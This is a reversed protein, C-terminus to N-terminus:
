FLAKDYVYLSAYLTTTAAVTFLVAATRNSMSVKIGSISSIGLLLLLACPIFYRGQVGTVLYFGIENFTLYLLLIISLASLLGASLLAAAQSTKIKDVYLASICLIFTTALVLIYPLSVTNYGLRGIFSDHWESGNQWFTHGLIRLFDLPHTFIFHLQESMGINAMQIPTFYVEMADAYQIGKLSVLAFIVTCATFLVLKKSYEQKRSDFLKAPLIFILLIAIAYSPKTFMLLASTVYLLIEHRVSMTKKSYLLKLIVAIFLITISNTYMDANITVASFISSPLLAILFVVWKARYDRLLRLASYVCALYFLVQTLKSLILTSDVSLNLVMGIKMGIAAPVYVLPAYPGTTGFEYFQTQTSNIRQSGLKYVAQPDKVDRRTEEYVALKRDVANSQSWGNNIVGILSIPLIGGYGTDTRDPYLGGDAIQYVRATHVQEDLGWSHPTIYIFALVAPVAVILFITDTHRFVRRAM